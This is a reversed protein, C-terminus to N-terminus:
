LLTKAYSACIDCICQKTSLSSELDGSIKTCNKGGGLCLLRSQGESQGSPPGLMHVVFWVSWLTQCLTQCVSAKADTAGVRTGVGLMQLTKSGVWSSICRVHEAGQHIWSNCVAQETHKRVRAEEPHSVLTTSCGNVNVTVLLATLWPSSADTREQGQTRCLCYKLFLYYAKFLSSLPHNGVEKM